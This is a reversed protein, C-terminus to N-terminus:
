PALKPLKIATALCPMIIQPDTILLKKNKGPYDVRSLLDRILNLHTLKKDNANVVTWPADPSTTKELMLDRAVSYAHWKKQAQQDIPSIKWQKLPDKARDALRHAQEAKDIDLYYKFIQIGSTVLLSEFDNVSAMFEKYQADTCFGM